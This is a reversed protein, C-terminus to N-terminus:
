SAGEARGRGRPQMRYRDCRKYLGSGDAFRRRRAPVDRGDGLGRSDGSRGGREHRRRHRCDYEAMCITSPPGFSHIRGGRLSLHGANPDRERPEVSRTFLSAHHNPPEAARPRVPGFFGGRVRRRSPRADPRAVTQRRGAALREALSTVAGALRRPPFVASTIAGLRFVQGDRIPTHGRSRLVCRRAPGQEVSGPCVCGGPEEDRGSGPRRRSPGPTKKQDSGGAARV